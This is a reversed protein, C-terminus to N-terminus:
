HAKLLRQDVQRVAEHENAHHSEPARRLVNIRAEPRPEGGVTEQASWRMQRPQIPSRPRRAGNSGGCDATILRRTAAPYLDRGVRQWWRRISEEAFAATDRSVGVNVWGINHTVDYVGYPAIKGLEKDAFDHM